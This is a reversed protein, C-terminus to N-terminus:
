GALTQRAPLSVTVPKGLTEMRRGIGPLLNQDGRAWRQFLNAAAALYALALWTRDVGPAGLLALSTAQATPLQQQRQHVNLGLGVVLTEGDSTAQALLGGLKNGQVMVDNPWKLAVPAPLVLEVAQVAALGFVLPLLTRPLATTGSYNHSAELRLLVSVLLSSRPPAQWSRPTAEGAHFRGRGGTQYEALLATLHPQQGAAKLLETNTSGAQDVVTIKAYPGQEVLAEVLRPAHLPPYM